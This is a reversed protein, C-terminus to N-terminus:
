VVEMEQCIAAYMQGAFKDSKPFLLVIDELLAELRKNKLTQAGGKIQMFRDTLKKMDEVTM